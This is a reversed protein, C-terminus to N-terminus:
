AGSDAPTLGARTALKQRTWGRQERLRRLMEGFRIADLNVTQTRPMYGHDCCVPLEPTDFIVM